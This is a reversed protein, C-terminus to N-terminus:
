SPYHIHSHPLPQDASLYSVAQAAPPQTPQCFASHVSLYTHTWTPPHHNVTKTLSHIPSTIPQCLPLPLYSTRPWNLPPIWKGAEQVGLYPLATTFIFSLTKQESKWSSLVMIPISFSGLCTLRLKSGGKNSLSPCLSLSSSELVQLLWM